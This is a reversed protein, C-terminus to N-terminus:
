FRDEWPWPGVTIKADSVALPVYDLVFYDLAAQLVGSPADAANVKWYITNIGENLYITGCDYEKFNGSYWTTAVDAGQTYYTSKNDPTNAYFDWDSSYQLNPIYTPM